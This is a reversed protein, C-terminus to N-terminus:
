GNRRAAARAGWVAFPIGIVLVFAYWYNSLAFSNSNPTFQQFNITITKPSNILVGSQQVVKYNPQQTGTVQALYYISTGPVVVVVITNTTTGYYVGNVDVQWSGTYGTEVFTIATQVTDSIAVNSSTFNLTGSTETLAYGTNSLSANWSYTGPAISETISSKTTSYQTSGVKVFFTVGSPLSAISFTFSLNFYEVKSFTSGSITFNGSITSPIFPSPGTVIYSYSGNVLSVNNYESSSTYYSGNVEVTWNQGTLGHQTFYVGYSHAIFSVSIGVPSGSITFTGSPVEASYVTNTNQVTYAYTGNPENFSIATSTSSHASTTNVFWETSSPLGSETFTVSYTILSATVAVSVSGNNVTFTGSSPSLSYTKDVTQVTYSFVGNDSYFQISSGTTHYTSTVNVYWETGSPLGSMTFTVPYTVAAFSITVTQSAGNVSVGGSGPSPAYVQSAVTVQPISYTYSGNMESFAIGSGSTGSETTGALTANWSAGSPLGTEAFNVSYTRPAMLVYVFDYSVTSVVNFGGSVNNYAASNMLSYDPYYSGGLSTTIQNWYYTGAPLYDTTNAYGYSQWTSALNDGNSLNIYQTTGAPPKSDIGRVVFWVSYAEFTYTLTVGGGASFTGGSPSVTAYQASASWSYSGSGIAETFTISSGTSTKTVGGATVKWVWGSPLDGSKTFVYNYTSLNDPVNTQKVTQVGLFPILSLASVIMIIAVLSTTIKM